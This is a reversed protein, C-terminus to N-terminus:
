CDASELRLVIERGVVLSARYRPPRGSEWPAEGRSRMWRGIVACRLEPCGRWFSSSLCVRLRGNMGPLEVVVPERELRVRNDEFVRRHPAPVRLGWTRGRWGTLVLEHTM